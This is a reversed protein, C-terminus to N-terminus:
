FTFRSAFQFQRPSNSTTTIQGFQDGAAGTTWGSSATPVNPASFQPRNAVNYASIDFRIDRKEGLKVTKSLTLDLNNAGMTRLHDLYAPASGAAFQSAPVAFCDATFWVAATRPAGKSPDCTMDARQNLYINDGVYPSPIPVGSSLYFIGNATWGGLIANSIGNLNLARDKGVPLDYSAQWTFQYKVDQPSVSHEYGLDRWDQVSGLHFGVFGLPPNGDDTMLKAWTFSALTTFHHTLRKQLKMQLSSYESDGAAYGNVIVGNTQGTMSIAGGAIFQPYPEANLFDQYTANPNSGIQNLQSLSLQNLDVYGFPLFLGRSGVYGVSAVIEHPFEYELGFNFNYTVPTRQSHLMTSINSGINTLLGNPHLQSPPVLGTPFPNSLSYPGTVSAAGGPTCLTPDSPNNAAAPNNIVTNGDANLCTANWNNSTSYGDSDVLSGSVMEVSPGYYFGAGGRVVLHKEAEWAFGLRPAFNTLNTTFPSRNGSTAFVEGGTFPGGAFSGVAPSTGTATPDFYELRNHRETKGGFIDWRLGATVTLNPLVHYTDEVFAAYYPSAVASFLDQTFNVSENGPLTGMGLLFSAFDSGGVPTGSAPQSQQDTASIDFYYWGSSAPPQGVNLFRKMYEAGFSLEHKGFVKTLTASADHNMSAYLFTNYNATGGIGDTNGSNSTLDNFFAIPLTKYAQAAALSSPFGLTTIDFGNQRPDGGQDEYHRTFSYRLQLVTTPSITIDDGLVFNRANTINQAYYSDWDNGFANVGASTTRAYSFRSFLRQKEGKYYDMRVDFRQGTIPDLGPLQFNNLHNGTDAECSVPDPYNCKPFHNLFAVATPNLTLGPYDTLINGPFPQRTGDPNDPALPNYITSSDNSFDGNREATTPVTFISSNDYLKEQTAEYDAFFFLKKHLIPGGIAGGEQYRHFSPAQNPTGALLQDQKNFYENAALVDPRLVVFADGHFQDGGSKSVLSIVGAGGSQYSAPTNQTEVRFEEVGDEPIEMAPLIAALNNEAVGLPSGDLMYYISGQIAGNITYSSVDIGPRGSSINIIAQSSSSNPAGNAPTVGPSLQVLDFVNRTLLPVRDIAASDILQGVTSNTTDVLAPATSVIVTESVGGVKLSINATAVQDVTVLVNDQAVSEFGKQSATVIYIGPSLSVFSYLGADSTVTHLAVGTAHNLATVTAGSIIAGSPDSILGSIGGRGAQGFLLSGACLYLIFVSLSNGMARAITNRCNM